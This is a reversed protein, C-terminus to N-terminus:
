RTAISRASQTPGATTLILAHQKERKVAYLSSGAVGAVIAALGLHALQAGWHRPRAAFSRVGSRVATAVDIAVGAAVGTVAFAVLLAWPNLYGMAGVVAAAVAGAAAMGLLKKWARGFAGASFGLVPGTAMMGAVLLAMPLVVRNYFPPGLTQPTGSVMGSIKEWMTGVMVVVTMVSLLVNAGLIMGERSIVDEVPHEARLVNLRGLITAVSVLAVACLFVLFFTGIPSDGFTHVSKVVGSRTLYTGFICLFFSAATLSATWRKFMGRRSQMLSAHLLATGTLWPLLSANEVPDWGWYGGWGLVMYAWQSGLVIGVTLAAWAFVM